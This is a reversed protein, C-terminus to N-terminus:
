IDPPVVVSVACLGQTPVSFCRFVRGSDSEAMCHLEPYPIDTEMRVFITM